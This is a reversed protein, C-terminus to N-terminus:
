VVEAALDLLDDLDILRVLLGDMRFNGLVDAGVANALLVVKQELGDSLREGIKV